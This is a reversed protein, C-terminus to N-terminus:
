SVTAGVDLKDIGAVKMITTPPQQMPDHICSGKLAWRHKGHGRELVETFEITPTAVWDHHNAAARELIQDGLATIPREEDAATGEYLAKMMVMGENVGFNLEFAYMGLIGAQGCKPKARNRDRKSQKHSM